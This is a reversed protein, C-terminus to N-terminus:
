ANHQISTFLIASFLCRWRILLKLNAVSNPASIILTFFVEMAFAITSCTSSRLIVVTHIPTGRKESQVTIKDVLIKLLNNCLNDVLLVSKIM